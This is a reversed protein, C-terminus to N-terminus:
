HKPREVRIEVAFFKPAIYQQGYRWALGEQRDQGKVPMGALWDSVGDRCASCAAALNDDDLARPAIRTLTVLLPLGVLFGPGWLTLLGDYVARRQTKVRTHRASWHEQSRVQKESVLHLPLQLALMAGPPLWTYGQFGGADNRPGDSKKQPSLRRAESSAKAVATSQTIPVNPLYEEGIIHATSPLTRSLLTLCRACYKGPEGTCTCYSM